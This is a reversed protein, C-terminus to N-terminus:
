PDRALCRRDSSRSRGSTPTPDAPVVQRRDGTRRLALPALAVVLLWWWGSRGPELDENPLLIPDQLDPLDQGAAQDGSSSVAPTRPAPEDARNDPNTPEYGVWGLGEIWVEPWAHIQSEDVTATAAEATLATDLRYGVVVRSPMGLERAIVAFVSASQEAFGIRGAPQDDTESGAPALYSTLAALSHGAPAEENYGFDTSRLNAEVLALQEQPTSGAAAVRNVYEALIEFQADTSDPRM